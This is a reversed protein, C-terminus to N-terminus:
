GSALHAQLFELVHQWADASAAKNYRPNSPNAFAHPADYTFFQHEVHAQTLAADFRKVLDPPITTDQNGFIGLIAAKIKALEVPDTVPQGYYIVAAQLDALNLAAQLAWGGGFCWGIVGKRTAAIRPDSSLFQDAQRLTALAQSANVERVYAMASDPNDAVKGNFLDVAVAAYGVAALRDTWHKINENLGWWEHIVILAPFPPAGNPPLSLYAHQGGIMITEGPAGDSRENRAGAQCNPARFPEVHKAGCGSLLGALVFAVLAMPKM